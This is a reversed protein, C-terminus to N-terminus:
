VNRKEIEEWAENFGASNVWEKGGDELGDMGVGVAYVNALSSSTPCVM